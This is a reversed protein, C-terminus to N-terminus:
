PATCDSRCGDSDVGNGDDCWEGSDVVGDGCVPTPCPVSTHFYVSSLVCASRRELLALLDELERGYLPASPCTATLHAAMRTRMHGLRENVHGLRGLKQSPTLVRVAAADFVRTHDHLTAMLLKTGTMGVHAICGRERRSLGPAVVPNLVPAYLMRLTTEAENCALLVDNRADEADAFRLETLAGGRCAAGVTATATARAAAITAARAATDCSRGDLTAEICHRHATLATHFCRRTAQSLHRLCDVTSAGFPGWLALPLPPLGHAYLADTRSLALAALACATAIRAWRHAAM